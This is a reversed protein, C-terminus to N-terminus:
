ESGSLPSEVLQLIHELFGSQNSFTVDYMGNFGQIQADDLGLACVLFQTQYLGLKKRLISFKKIDSRFEGTKCEVCVPIKDAILFFGDIEFRGKNQFNVHFSRLCSVPVGREQLLNLIKMFVFWEMWEGLFFQSIIPVTQLKMHVSKNKNDFSYRSVFSYDYLQQCFDKIVAIKKNNSHKSLKLNVGTYGKQQNFKIQNSVLKLTEYEDGLRVAIEDFFGTTDLAQHDIDLHIGRHKMWAVIPQYQEPDALTATNHIDVDALLQPLANTSNGSATPSAPQTSEAPALQQVLQVFQRKLAQLEKDQDKYKGIINKLFRVTDHVTNPQKCGPCAVSKGTYESKVERFYNCNNCLFIAM